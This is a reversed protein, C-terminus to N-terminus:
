PCVTQHRHDRRDDDDRQERKFRDIQGASSQIMLAMAQTVPKVNAAVKRLEQILAHRGKCNGGM